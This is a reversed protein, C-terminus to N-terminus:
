GCNFFNKPLKEYKFSVWIKKGYGMIIRGRTIAKQLKLEVNVRLFKRWGIGDDAVDVDHVRGVFGGIQEGWDKKMLGLPLNHIQLWFSEYEFKMKAPQLVGDYPQIFFLLNDFM